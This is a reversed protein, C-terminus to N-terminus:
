LWPRHWALGVGIFTSLAMVAILLIYTAQVLPPGSRGLPTPRTDRWFLVLATLLALGGLVVWLRANTFVGAPVAVVGANWLATQWAVDDAEGPGALVTQGRTLLAQALFGVLFLYAVLWASHSFHWVVAIVAVLVSGFLSVGAFLVLPSWRVTSMSVM